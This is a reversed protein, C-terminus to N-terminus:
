VVVVPEVPFDEVLKTAWVNVLPKVEEFTLTFNMEVIVETIIDDLAQLVDAEPLTTIDSGDCLAVLDAGLIGPNVGTQAQINAAIIRVIRAYTYTGLAGPIRNILAVILANMFKFRMLFLFTKLSIRGIFKKFKSFM